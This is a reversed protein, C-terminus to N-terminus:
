GDMSVGLLDDLIGEYEVEIIHIDDLTQDLYTVTNRDLDIQPTGLADAVDQATIDGFIDGVEDLILEALEPLKDEYVEAIERATEEYGDSVEECIFEVSDIKATYAQEEESFNFLAM